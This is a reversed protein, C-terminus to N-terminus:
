RTCPREGLLLMAGHTLYRLEELTGINELDLDARILDVGAESAHTDEVQLLSPRRVKWVVGGRQTVGAAENPFRVDPIVVRRGPPVPHLLAEVWTLDYGVRVGATHFAAAVTAASVGLPEFVGLKGERGVETGVLQLIWRPSVGWRPDVGEKEAQTGHVQEHSLGFLVRAIEKVKDAFARREFGFEEVLFGAVSDKGHGKKGSVGVIM